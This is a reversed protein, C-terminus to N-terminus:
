AITIAAMMPRAKPRVVAVARTNSKPRRTECIHSRRDLRTTLRIQAASCPVLADRRPLAVVVHLTARGAVIEPGGSVRRTVLDVDGRMASARRQFAGLVVPEREIPEVVRTPPTGSM